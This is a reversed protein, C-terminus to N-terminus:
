KMVSGSVCVLVFCTLCGKGLTLSNWCLMTKKYDLQQLFFWFFGWIHCPLPWSRGPLKGWCDLKRWLQPASVSCCKCVWLDRDQWAGGASCCLCNWGPSKGEAARRRKGPWLLPSLSFLSISGCLMCQCPSGQRHSATPSPLLSSSFLTKPPKTGSCRNRHVYIYIQAESNFASLDCFKFYKQKYMLIYLKLSWLLIFIMRSMSMMM